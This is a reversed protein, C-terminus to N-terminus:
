AAILQQLYHGLAAVSGFHEAFDPDFYAARAAVIVVVLAWFAGVGAKLAIRSATRSAPAAAGRLDQTVPEGFPDFQLQRM